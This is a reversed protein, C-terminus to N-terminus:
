EYRNLLSLRWVSTIQLFGIAMRNSDLGFRNVGLCLMTLYMLNSLSVPRTKGERERERRINIM